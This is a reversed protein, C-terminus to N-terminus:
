EAQTAEPKEFLQSILQSVQPEPDVIKLRTEPSAEESGYFHDVELGLM